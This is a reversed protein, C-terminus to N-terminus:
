KLGILALTVMMYFGTLENACCILQSTEIHPCCQYKIPYITDTIVFKTYVVKANHHLPMVLPQQKLSGPDIEFESIQLINPLLYQFFIYRKREVHNQINIFRAKM